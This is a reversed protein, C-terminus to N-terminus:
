DHNALYKEKNEETLDYKNGMKIVWLSRKDEKKTSVHLYKETFNVGIESFEPIEEAARFAEAMTVNDVTIDAALGLTHYNKKISDQGNECDPCVYGKIINVRNKVKFRLLELAGVLGLSIKIAGNCHACKCEFDRTSFHDSIKTYKKKQM